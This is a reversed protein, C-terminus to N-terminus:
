TESFLPIAFIHPNEEFFSVRLVKANVGKLASCAYGYFSLGAVM